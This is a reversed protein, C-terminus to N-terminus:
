IIIVHRVYKKAYNMFINASKVTYSVLHNIFGTYYQIPQGVFPHRVALETM